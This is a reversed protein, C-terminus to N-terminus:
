SAPSKRPRPPISPPSTATPSPVAAKAILASRDCRDDIYMARGTAKDYADVRAVSKGVQSM